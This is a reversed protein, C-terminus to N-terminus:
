PLHRNGGDLQPMKVGLLATSIRTSAIFVAAIVVNWFADLWRMELLGLLLWNGLFACTAYPTPDTLLMPKQNCVMDRMLGGFTATIVGMLVCPLVPWGHALAMQTGTASFIGLGVADAVMIVRESLLRSSVRLFWSALLSMGLVAWLLFTHQMWYFPRQDLLVDRLTGGGFAVMFTAIFTGVGDLQHEQAVLLGSLAFAFVAVVELTFFVLRPDIPLHMRQM